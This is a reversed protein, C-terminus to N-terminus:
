EKAAIRATAAVREGAELRIVHVGQAQRGMVSIQAAPIRNFVGGSTVLLIEDDDEVARVTVVAGVKKSVRLNIVGFGGRRKVPYQGIPTRKGFGLDTVTLLTPGEATDAVGVVEDDDRLRIGVVGRAARGMERVQGARFRIAKGQRTALLIETEKGILRVGVLRDDRELSIAVIGGRKANIFEMLGTRKVVGRRTAMFLSGEDEFSRLPIIANVREGQALALLNVLATGKATRGAEPVEHAKIRYVKGRDTLFLLFAHNTTIVAHQVFDEEKTGMGIVGRTGRRQLRYTELPQRKIYSDHTLTIVVDADPILDEAEFEEAERGTIKTRRADGYKQKMERLEDRITAMILRPRPSTADTLMEKLRAIDQVLLKYEEDLKERELATLRQLRIELIADAQVESLKFQKMLGTRATPVDKSKRILAIIEDLAKLAIKLGELVHARAEAKALDFQTRRIVVTRRHRLYQNLLERLGLTKPAGDVLALMIAGFTTQLQTHKFLQNRVIQPNVDRRLEIVIRMGRRDSEDRLDSVGNLKKDRVLDAIRQILASKNVFFPLETVVVAVRGGRMEELEAKGRVTISGRGSEYAAKIGDRGLIQGGTPFDPGKILKLLEEPSLEPDEIMAVLGDVLEGLNHPPINAAMGVAIGSAGNMLLHPVKSPLVVPEKEYEDYNPVFDVTDREIDALLEMALPTLRCETNHNIFGNAVFSHCPSDVRVSYVRQAGADDVAVVQEFLYRADALQEIQEVEGSPLVQALRPLAERLRLPRDFNHKSLWERQGRGAHQRVFAALFPVFDTKSLAKGRHAALVCELARRKTDSVFGIKEAFRQLNERGVVGLRYAGGSKEASLACTIGFRLLLTQVQQLLTRNKATLGIRLLSRGSREVSGDGEYLARLFAAAVAQPCRLVVEPIERVASKGSLGLNKLFAIVQRSVVQMQWFRKEGYGVPERLFTHLRCTPFVREWTAQFVDAFDGQTNTFEVVYKGFHGEAVFAGLLFALDTTLHAPLEHRQRRSRATLAPHFPRLNVPEDPWLTESRDLVLWDGLAIAGLTKWVFATRGDRDPVCALLPHNFTGTLEYGRRTRVRKTPFMGCDFWKSATNVKGDRSIVHTTIDERGDSSIRDMRQLGRDTVVLVDGSCCYRMAAPPDADVSGFNGQGDVLPYRFAWPQAMRVLAEYIPADGHPHYKKMVDGVVAATKRYPRDPRLGAELMAYLIRRQVPKLGDRADPLARSVIVSMAYDLYSTRMEQEIPQPIIRSEDGLSM